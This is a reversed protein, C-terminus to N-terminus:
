YKGVEEKMVVVWLKGLYWQGSWHGIATKRWNYQTDIQQIQNAPKRLARQQIVKQRGYEHRFAEIQHQLHAEKDSVDGWPLNGPSRSKVCESLYWARWERCFRQSSKETGILIRQNPTESGVQSFGVSEVHSPCVIRWDSRTEYTLLFCINTIKMKELKEGSQGTWGNETGWRAMVNRWNTTEAMKDVGRLGMTPDTMKM